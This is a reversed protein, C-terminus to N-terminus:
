KRFWKYGYYGLWEHLLCDCSHMAGISPVFDRWQVGSGRWQLMKHDIAVPICELEPAYRKFMLMSRKMHCATTVLLVKTNKADNKLAPTTFSNVAALIKAVFKANEETNRSKGEILLAEEPIGAEKFFEGDSCSPFIGSPVIIPAKKAKWLRVAHWARDAADGLDVYPYQKCGGVGGGLVVIADAEPLDEVLQVPYDRELWYGLWYSALPMSLVWFWVISVVLLKARWKKIFLASVVLIMGISFPCFLLWVFKNLMHM